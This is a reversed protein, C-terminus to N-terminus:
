EAAATVPAENRREMEAALTMVADFDDDDLQRLAPVISATDSAPHAVMAADAVIEYQLITM